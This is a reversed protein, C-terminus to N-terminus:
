TLMGEIILDVAKDESLGRSMLTELQKSDVSGIAAEHTVHAKPDNVEVIPVARAVAEDQVIEKCDVHGRSFPANAILENNVVANAQGQVAIHSTLVGRAEEGLLQGSENIIIEDDARGNVRALMEFVGHEHCKLNYDIDMRGVSGKILEFETEFRGGKKIEVDARPIVNVGGEPGHIHREFYSYTANKGVTIDADMEHRVDTANPFTCYAQFFGTAEEEINIDLIVKQNGERDLLGFCIIVGGTLQTGEKLVFDAEVRDSKERVDVELGDVLNAGVVKNGHIEIHAEDESDPRCAGGLSSYLSDVIENNM